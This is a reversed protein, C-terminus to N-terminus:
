KEWSYEENRMENPSSVLFDIINLCTNNITAVKYARRDTSSDSVHRVRGVRSAAAQRGFAVSSWKSLVKFQVDAAPQECFLEACCLYLNTKDAPLFYILNCINNNKSVTMPQSANASFNPIAFYNTTRKFLIIMIRRQESKWRVRSNCLVVCDGTM